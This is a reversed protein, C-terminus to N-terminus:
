STSTGGKEVDFSIKLRDGVEFTRTNTRVWVTYSAKKSIARIEGVLSEQRPSAPKTKKSIFMNKQNSALGGVLAPKHVLEPDPMEKSIYETARDHLDQMTLPLGKSVAKAVADRVGRTFFSGDSSAQARQNDQAASLASYNGSELGQISKSTFSVSRVTRPMGPYELYKSVVDKRPPISRTATGSHCADILIFINRSPIKELMKNFMDDVFVNKLTNVGLAADHTVLVEDARDSEDKNRDFIQSGHGSFYFLVHDNGSVGKVLWSDIAQQIKKLTADEDLLVKIESKQYGLSQAVSRMMAIDKEIGPLDAGRLQYKGVGVLLARDAASVTEVPLALVLALLLIAAFRM